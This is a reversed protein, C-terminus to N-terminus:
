KSKFQVSTSDCGGATSFIRSGSQIMQVVIM